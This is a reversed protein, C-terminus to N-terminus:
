NACQELGHGGKSIYNICISAVKLNDSIESPTMKSEDLKQKRVINGQKDSALTITVNGYFQDDIYYEALFNNQGPVEDAKLTGADVAKKMCSSIQRLTQAQRSNGLGNQILLKQREQLENYSVFRRRTNYFFFSTEEDIPIYEHPLYSYRDYKLMDGVAKRANIKAPNEAVLPCLFYNKSYRLVLSKNDLLHYPRKVLTFNDYKTDRTSVRYKGSSVAFEVFRQSKEWAAKNATTNPKFFPGEEDEAAEKARQEADGEAKIRANGKKIADLVICSSLTLMFVGAFVIAKQKSVSPRCCAVIRLLLSSLGAGYIQMRSLIRFFVRNM